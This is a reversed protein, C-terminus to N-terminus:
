KYVKADGNTYVLDKSTQLFNSPFTYVYTAGGNITSTTINDVVNSYDAYVYSNQAVTQPTVDLFEGHNINASVQLRLTGYDDAYVSSNANYQTGLWQAAAVDTQQDYLSSYDVGDNNLNASPNGGSYQTVIGSAVLFALGIVVALIYRVSRKFLLQLVRVAVLIAPLAVVMLVQENLRSPNYVIQLAPVVHIAVFAIIGIIGIIGLEMKEFDRKRYAWLSMLGIGVSGLIWWGFNFSDTLGTNVLAAISSHAKVVPQKTPTLSSNSAAKYYTLGKNDDHYYKSIDRLYLQTTPPAPAAPVSLSVVDELITLVVHGYSTTQDFSQINGYSQTAPGYWLGAAICLILVAWGKVHLRSAIAKTDFKRGRLLLLAKMAVYTGAFFIIALYTTSYHSVVLGLLFTVMIQNKARNSLRDKQLMLYLLCAFFLFAIQQRVEGSFQQMYYFQAVIVLAAVFSIWRRTFQRYIYYLTVPVFSFIMPAILKFITLGSISSLKSVIVPFVTLSLMASYPGHKVGIAWKGSSLTSQFVQFEQQIDWGFVYNSRLSYSWISAISVIFITLPFVYKPLHKQRAVAFVIDVFGLGFAIMAPVNTYGNNLLRAGVFSFALTLALLGGMVWAEWTFHSRVRVVAKKPTVAARLSWPILAGTVLPFLVFLSNNTLPHKIGFLPLILDVGLGFLMVWFIGLAVMLSLQLMIALRNKTYGGFGRFLLYGSLLIVAMAAPIHFLTTSKILNSLLTAFLIVSLIVAQAYPKKAPEPIVVLRKEPPAVVPIVPVVNEEITPESTVSHKFTNRFKWWGIAYGINNYAEQLAQVYCYLFPELNRYKFARRAGKPYLLQTLIFPTLLLWPNLLGLLLTLVILEPFPYITHSMDSYKRALRANGIGYAKSRRLTDRLRSDFQHVMKAKPVYFLGKPHLKNIRRSLEQDEGGFTFAEDFMGAEVLTDKRFSMNGGILSYIPRKRNSTSRKVDALELLYMGFRNMISKTTYLSYELVQLPNNMQLYRHMFTSGNTSIMPGGVGRVQESSYGAYLEKIWTPTPCCDDDTFAVITSRVEQIGVNRSAALGINHENKIVRVGKFSKAVKYTNDASGDDVVIIELKGDWVQNKLATLCDALTDEGNYSCVVVSISPKRKM